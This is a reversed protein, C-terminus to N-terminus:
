QYRNQNSRRDDPKKHEDYNKPQYQEGSGHQYHAQPPQAPFHAAGTWALDENAFVDYYTVLPL